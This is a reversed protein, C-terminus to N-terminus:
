FGDLTTRMGRERGVVIELLLHFIRVAICLIERRLGLQAIPILCGPTM